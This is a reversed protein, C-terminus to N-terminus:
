QDMKDMMGGADLAAVGMAVSYKRCWLVVHSYAALDTGAPVEFEQAGSFRKLKGLFLAGDGPVTESPSLVVFVDPGKEVAFDAGLQLRTHKGVTAFNYSGRAAHGGAGAFMGRPTDAMGAHDHMAEKAIGEKPMTKKDKAMADTQAHLPAGALALLAAYTITFRGTM